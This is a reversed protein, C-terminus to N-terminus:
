GGAKREAADPSDAQDGPKATDRNHAPPDEGAHLVMAIWAMLIIVLVLPIFAYLHLLGTM